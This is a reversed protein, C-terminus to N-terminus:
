IEIPCANQHGVFRGHRGLSRWVRRVGGITAVGLVLGLYIGICRDCVAIQVGGLFPSRASMQHCVPSFAHMVVARWKESVFPPLLALFLVLVTLALM